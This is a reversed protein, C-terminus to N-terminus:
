LPSRVSVLPFAFSAPASSRGLSLGGGPPSVAGCERSLGQLCTLGEGETGARTELRVQMGWLWGPIGM